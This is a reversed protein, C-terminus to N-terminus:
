GCMCVCVCVYVRVCVCVYAYVCVCRYNYTLKSSLVPRGKVDPAEPPLRVLRVPYFERVVVEVGRHTGDQYVTVRSMDAGAARQVSRLLRRLAQARNHALVVIPPHALGSGRGRGGWRTASQQPPSAGAGSSRTHRHTQTYAVNQRAGDAIGGSMHSHSTPQSRPPRSTPAPAGFTPATRHVRAAPATVSPRAWPEAGNVGQHDRSTAFSPPKGQSKAKTEVVRIGDAARGGQVGGRGTDHAQQMVARPPLMPPLPPPPPPPPPPIDNPDRYGSDNSNDEDEYWEREDDDAGVEGLYADEGHAAVHGEDHEESHFM